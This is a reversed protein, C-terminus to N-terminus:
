LNDLYTLRNIDFCVGNMKNGIYRIYGGSSITFEWRSIKIINNNEFHESFLLKKWEELIEVQRFTPSRVQTIRNNILEYLESTTKEYSSIQIGSHLKILKTPVENYKINHKTCYWLPRKIGNIDTVFQSSYPPYEQIYEINNVNDFITNFPYESLQPFGMIDFTDTQIGQIIDCQYIKSRACYNDKQYIDSDTLLIVKGYALPDLRGAFAVKSDTIGYELKFKILLEGMTEGIQKNYEFIM